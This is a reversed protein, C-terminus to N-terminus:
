SITRVAAILDSLLKSRYELATVVNHQHLDFIEKNTVLEGADNRTMPLVMTTDGDLKMVTRALLRGKEDSKLDADTGSLLIYRTEITLETADELAKALKQTANKVSSQLNSM